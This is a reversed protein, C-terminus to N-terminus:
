ELPERSIKNVLYENALIGTQFFLGLEVMFLRVTLLCVFLCVFFLVVVVFFFFFFFFFFRTLENEM